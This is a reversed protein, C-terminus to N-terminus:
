NCESQAKPIFLKPLGLAGQLRHSEAAWDLRLCVEGGVRSVLTKGAASRVLEVLIYLCGSTCPPFSIHFDLLVLGLVRGLSLELNRLDYKLFSTM